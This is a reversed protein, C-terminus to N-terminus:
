LTEKVGEYTGMGGRYRKMMSHASRVGGFGSTSIRIGLHQHQFTLLHIPFHHTLLASNLPHLCSLRFLWTMPNYQFSDGVLCVDKLHKGQDQVVVELVKLFLISNNVLREMHATITYCCLAVYLKFVCQIKASLLVSKSPPAM